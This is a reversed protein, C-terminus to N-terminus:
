KIEVNTGDSNKTWLTGDQMQVVNVSGPDGGKLVYDLKAFNNIKDLESKFSGEDISYGTVNGAGDKIAWSNLKTASSSLLNLEGESLAGFTAGNSKANQLNTLTLQNQLQQMGALFNSSAGNYKNFFENRALINPGVVGSLAASGLLTGVEDINSQAFAMQQQSALPNASTVPTFAGTSKNFVGAPQNATAAVFQLDPGSTANLSQKLKQNQLTLNQNQLTEQATLPKTYSALAKLGGTGLGLLQEVQSLQQPNGQLSAYLGAYGQSQIINNYNDKAASTMKDELDALQSTLGIKQEVQKDVEASDAQSFQMIQNVYDQKTQLQQSLVNAQKLLTKNRAGTLALVQSDTATGGAATIEQRIDDETGNMVNNINLLDTQLAPIGQQAVLSQYEQAFTQQTGISSLTQNITDYLNKVVPNMSMYQDFFNKQPDIQPTQTNQQFYSDLASSAQAGTQPATTGKNANFADTYKKALDTNQQATGTYGQIGFQQALQQRAAFSSDQGAANLLDVVSGNPPLTLPAQQPQTTTQPTQTTQATPQTTTQPTTGLLAQNTKTDTTLNIVPQTSQPQSVPAAMYPTNGPGISGPQYSPNAVQGAPAATKTIQTNTPQTNVAGYVPAAQQPPASSGVPVVGNPNNPDVMYGPGPTIAM